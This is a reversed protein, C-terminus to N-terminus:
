VNFRANEYLFSDLHGCVVNLQDFLRLLRARLFSNVGQMREEMAEVGVSKILKLLRLEDAYQLKVVHLRGQRGETQLHVIDFGEERQQIDVLVADYNTSCVSFARVISLTLEKFVSKWRRSGSPSPERRFDSSTLTHLRGQGEETPILVIEFTTERQQIDVLVADCLDVLEDHATQAHAPARLSHVQLNDHLHVDRGPAGSKDFTRTFRDSGNFARDSFAM